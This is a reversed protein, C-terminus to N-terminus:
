KKKEKSFLSRDRPFAAYRAAMVSPNHGHLARGPVPKPSLKTSHEARIPGSVHHPQHKKTM